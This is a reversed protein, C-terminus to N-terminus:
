GAIAKLARVAAQIEEATNFFGMSFRVTGGPFTGLTKHALPACHLSARVAVGFNRDLIRAIEGPDKGDITISIVATQKEPNRTGHTRINRFESLSELLRKTLTM